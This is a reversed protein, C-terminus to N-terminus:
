RERWDCDLGSYAWTANGEGHKDLWLICPLGNVEVEYFRGPIDENTEIQTGGKVDEPNSCAAAALMLAIGLLIRRV